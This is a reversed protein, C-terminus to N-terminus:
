EATDRPAPKMGLAAYRGTVTGRRADDRDIHARV